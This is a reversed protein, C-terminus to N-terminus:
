GDKDKHDKPFISLLDRITHDYYSNFQEKAL